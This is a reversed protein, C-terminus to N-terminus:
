RLVQANRQDEEREVVQQFKLLKLRLANRLELGSPDYTVGLAVVTMMVDAMELFVTETDEPRKSHTIAVILEACEEICKRARPEKGSTKIVRQALDIMAGYWETLWLASRDWAPELGM